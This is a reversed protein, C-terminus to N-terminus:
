ESRNEEPENFFEENMELRIVLEEIIMGSIYMRGM